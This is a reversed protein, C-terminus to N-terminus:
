KRRQRKAEYMLLTAAIAANLSEVKGEMPIRIRGDALAALEPSLGSGENGILFACGGRYDPQDYSVSGNLHAAYVAVQAEQIVGVAQKLHEVICCPVRYISGMTARITKPNYLDATERNMVIGSIGAGEGTRLMTGLNGPDQINELVLLHPAGAIGTGSSRNDNRQDAGASGAPLLDELQWEVMKVVALIGQPTQTDSIMRFVADSVIEVECGLLGIRVRQKEQTYFSESVYLRVIREPPAEFVLKPGEVVFVRQQWRAKAKKQLQLIQKIQQNHSSTIMFM